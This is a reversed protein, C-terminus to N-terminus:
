RLISPGDLPAMLCFMVTNIFSLSSRRWFEIPIVLLGNILFINLLAMVLHLSAFNGTYVVMLLDYSGFYDEKVLTLGFLDNLSQTFSVM